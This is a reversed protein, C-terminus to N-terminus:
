LVNKMRKNKSRLSFSLSSGLLVSFFRFSCSPLVLSHEKRGKKKRKKMKMKMKEENKVSYTVLSADKTWNWSRKPGRKEDM